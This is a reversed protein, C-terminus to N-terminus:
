VQTASSIQMQTDLTETAGTDGTCIREPASEAGKNSSKLPSGAGVAAGPTKTSELGMAPPKATMGAIIFTAPCPTITGTSQDYTGIKFLDFDGPYMQYVSGPTTMLAYFDRIAAGDALATFPASFSESKVDRVSYLNIIM